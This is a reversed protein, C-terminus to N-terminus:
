ASKQEHENTNINNSNLNANSQYSAVEENAEMKRYDFLGFFLYFKFICQLYFPLKDFQFAKDYINDYFYVDCFCSHNNVCFFAMVFITYIMVNSCAFLLIVIDSLLLTDKIIPFENLLYKKEKQKIKRIGISGIIINVLFLIILLIVRKHQSIFKFLSHSFVFYKNRRNNYVSHEKYLTYIFYIIILYIALIVLTLIYYPLLKLSKIEKHYDILVNLIIVSPFSLVIYNFLFCFSYQRQFVKPIFCLLYKFPITIYYIGKFIGNTIWVCLKDIKNM